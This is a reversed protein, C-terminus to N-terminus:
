SDLIPLRLSNINRRTSPQSPTSSYDQKIIGLNADPIFSIDNLALTFRMGGMLILRDKGFILCCGERSLPRKTDKIHESKVAEFEVDEESHKIELMEKVKEDSILNLYESQNSFLGLSALTAKMHKSLKDDMRLHLKAKEDEVIFEQQYFKLEYKSKIFFKRSRSRGEKFKKSLESNKSSMQRSLRNQFKFAEKNIYQWGQSKEQIPKIRGKRDVTYFGRNEESDEHIGGFLIFCEGTPYWIMQHGEIGRPTTDKNIVKWEQTAPNFSYMDALRTGKQYSGGMIFMQKNDDVCCAHNMRPPPWTSTPAFKDVKLAKVDVRYLKNSPGYQACTGSEYGGFIYLIGDICCLSHSELSPLEDLNGGQLKSIKCEIPFIDIKILVNSGQTQYSRGGFMVATNTDVLAASHRSLFLEKQKINELETKIMKFSMVIDFVNVSWLDGHIGTQFDVGGQVYLRLKTREIWSNKTSSPHLTLENKCKRDMHSSVIGLNTEM